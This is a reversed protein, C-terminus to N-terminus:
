IEVDKFVIKMESAIINRLENHRLNIFGGVHCIQSHDISFPKGCTCTLPLDQIPWHYRLLLQDRFESKSLSFGYRQIPLTTVLSSAGREQATQFARCSELPLLNCIREAREKFAVEHQSKINKKLSIQQQPDVYSIPSQNVICDSLTKSYVCSDSLLQDCTHVPNDIALGGYRGPLSLMDRELDSVLRGGLIAPLLEQRIVAELPEFLSSIGRVTRQIFTWQHRLGHVFAAYAAHPSTLAIVSLKRVLECWNSVKKSIFTTIFNTTGLAAGLDRAGECITIKTGDFIKQAENQNSSKFVLLSKSSNVFYGYGPGRTVLLHWWDKLASLKGSAQADDAYWVHNVIGDLEAILPMLSLAYFPMALPDGQTTGEESSLEGGGPIFLRSPQQYCNKAFTALTPCTFQINWLGVKRNLRNFANDADILLIADTDESLFLHNMAHIAAECGAEQGVCLQLPGASQQLDSKLFRIITKGIIRRLVEGIGIPRIGPSKDLPILRNALLAGLVDSNVVQTALRRAVAAIANCLNSSAEQFSCCMQRWQDADAGSPGGSGRTHLASSRILDGTIGAYLIPHIYPICGSMLYNSDAAEARPHKQQLLSFLEPNFPLAGGKTESMILKLAAKVKGQLM